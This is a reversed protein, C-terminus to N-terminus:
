RRTWGGPPPEAAPLGVRDALARHWRGVSGPTPPM